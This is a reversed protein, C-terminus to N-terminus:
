NNQPCLHLFISCDVATQHSPALQGGAAAEGIVQGAQRLVAATGHSLVSLCPCTSLSPGCVAGMEDKQLMSCFTLQTVGM